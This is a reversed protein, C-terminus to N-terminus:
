GRTRLLKSVSVRREIWCTAGIIAGGSAVEAEVTVLRASRGAAEIAPGCDRIAACAAAQLRETLDTM